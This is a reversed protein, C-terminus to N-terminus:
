TLQSLVEKLDAAFVEVEDIATDFSTMWRVIKERESWVHYHHGRKWMAENAEMSVRAFVANSEIPYVIEVGHISSVLEGLRLAMSNALSANRKWLDEKLYSLLQASIYRMKSALQSCQKRLFKAQLAANQNSFILAEGMLLGNKTGGFSIVDAGSVQLFEAPTMKLSVLANSLRAGDVYLFWGHRDKFERIRGLEEPHYVTGIETAQTLSLVKPQVRHECDLDELFTELDLLTLKGNKHPIDLLKVSLFKEPAGCEDVHIHSVDTCIIAEFSKLLTGLGVLNAGTGTMTFCVGVPAEFLEQFAQVAKQTWPDEGYAIEQGVNAEEIAELIQSSVGSHNDSGFSFKRKPDFSM